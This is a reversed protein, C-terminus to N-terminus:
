RGDPFLDLLRVLTKAVEVDGFMAARFHKGVIFDTWACPCYGPRDRGAFRAYPRHPCGRAFARSM